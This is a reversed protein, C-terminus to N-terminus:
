TISIERVSQKPKASKPLVISLVGDHYAAQVRTEDVNDPLRFSRVFSGYAREVRHYRRGADERDQRREGSLTLVGDEIGIKVDAKKVQPLEAKIIYTEPNEEVDVSPTWDSTALETRFEPPTTLFRDFDTTEMMRNMMRSMDRFENAFGRRVLNM